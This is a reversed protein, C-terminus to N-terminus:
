PGPRREAGGIGAEDPQVRRLEQQEGAGHDYDRDLPKDTFGHGIMDVSLVRFDAAHAAINRVYAEAHGNAGHLFFLAPADPDGAELVRTRVGGADHFRQAFEVGLLDTWLSEM